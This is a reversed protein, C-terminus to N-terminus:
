CLIFLLLFCSLGRNSKIVCFFVSFQFVLFIDDRPRIEGRLDSFLCRGRRSELLSYQKPKVRHRVQVGGGVRLDKSDNLTFPFRATYSIVCQSIKLSCSMPLHLPHHTGCLKQPPRATHLLLPGPHM